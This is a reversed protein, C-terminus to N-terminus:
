AHMGSLYIYQTLANHTDSIIKGSNCFYSVHFLQIHITTLIHSSQTHIDNIFSILTLAYHTYTHTLYLMYFRKVHTFLLVLSHNLMIHHTSDEVTHTPRRGGWRPNTGSRLNRCTRQQLVKMNLGSIEWLRLWTLVSQPRWRWKWRSPKM